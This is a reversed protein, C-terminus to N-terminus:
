LKEEQYERYSKNLDCIFAPHGGHRKGEPPLQMYDGFDEKLYADYGKPVRIKTSEFPVEIYGEFLKYPFIKIRSGPEFYINELSYCLWFAYSKVENITNPVTANIIGSIRSFAYGSLSTVTYKRGNYIITPPIILNSIIKTGSIGSGETGNGVMVKKAGIIEYNIGDVDFLSM